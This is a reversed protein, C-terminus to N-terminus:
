RLVVPVRDAYHMVQGLQDAFGPEDPDLEKVLDYLKVLTTIDLVRGSVEGNGVAEMIEDAEDNGVVSAAQAENYEVVRCNQTGTYTEGDNLVVMTAMEGGEGDPNHLEKLHEELDSDYEVKSKPIGWEEAMELATRKAQSKLTRLSEANPSGPAVYTQSEKAHNGAHYEDKIEGAELVQVVYGYVSAAYSISRLEKRNLIRKKAM